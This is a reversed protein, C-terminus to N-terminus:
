PKISLLSLNGVQKVPLDVEEVKGKIVTIISDFGNDTVIENAQDAIASMEIAYVHSAGAQM